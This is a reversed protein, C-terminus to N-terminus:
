RGKRHNRAGQADRQAIHRDVAHGDRGTSGSNRSSRKRQKLSDNPLGTIKTQRMRAPHCQIHYKVEDCKLIRSVTATILLLLLKM